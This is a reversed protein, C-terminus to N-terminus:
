RTPPAAGDVRRTAEIAIEIRVDDGLMVGAGEVARNWSVGYDLRNITTAAEFGFRESVGQPGSQRQLGLFQGELVVPKSRGRITLIGHIRGADGKREVRTSKFTIQPFSDAAFFNNSRLDADRREHDTFISATAINVDISANEWKAPDDLTVIGQWDRFNGRVRSMFHRITFDLVSHGKDVRWANAPLPAPTGAAPAPTQAAISLPAALAAVAILRRLSM